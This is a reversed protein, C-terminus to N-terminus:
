CAIDVPLKSEIEAMTFHELEEPKKVWMGYGKTRFLKFLAIKAQQYALSAKKVDSYTAKPGTGNAKVCHSAFSSFLSAKSIRPVGPGPELRGTVGNTLEAKEDGFAWNLSLSSTKETHRKLEDGGQARGLKPHRLTFTAPLSSEIDKARCCVARSLHGHHHLSGLTLSSMYLPEMFQSLLAGQLGLVNWRLVKDSCSMTRMREGHLIGDWTQQCNEGVPVTGEGDEIKTRLIGQKKNEITPMHINDAPPVRNQDDERSFLGGDGCPATSIYLHFKLAERVKVLGVTDSAVFVTSTNTLKALLEKYLFRMLSRRAVVEAHSDNVVLGKPSTKDGAVCRTGSGMSVVKMDNTNTDEMIFAALVKRGPQPTQISQQLQLLMSHSMAHIRDLELSQSTAVQGPLLPAPPTQVTRISARISQLALDAAKRKADKLNSSEAKFQNNGFTAAVVFTKRHSPGHEAILPFTLAVQNSQCYENLASVPNRTLDSVYTASNSSPPVELSALVWQEPTTGLCRVKGQRKLNELQSNVQSRTTNIGIERAVELATLGAGPKAGLVALVRSEFSHTDTEMPVETNDSSGSVAGRGVISWQVPFTSSGEVKGDEKLQELHTTIAQRGVDCGTLKLLELATYSVGPKSGLVVLLRQPVNDVPIHSLDSSTHQMPFSTQSEQVTNQHQQRSCLLTWQPAGKSDDRVILSDKAMAYLYPNVEKRTSYGIAKAIELSTCSKGKGSLFALIQGEVGGAPSAGPSSRVMKQESSQGSASGSASSQSLSWMAPIDGVRRIRGKKQLDYLTPNIDKRTKLGVSHSLELASMQGNAGALVDLVRDSLSGSM